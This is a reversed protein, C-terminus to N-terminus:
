CASHWNSCPMFEWFVSVSILLRFIFEHKGFIKWLIAVIYYLLPFEGASKGSTGNDSFQIHMSPEFLNWNGEYYNDALSLCAAQRWQHVSSPRM